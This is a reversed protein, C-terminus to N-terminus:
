KEEKMESKVEKPGKKRLRASTKGVKDVNEFRWSEAGPVREIRKKDGERKKTSSDRNNGEVSKPSQEREQEGPHRTLNNTQSEEKKELSAFRWVGGEELPEPPRRCITTSHRWRPKPWSPRPAPCARPLPLKSPAWVRHQALEPLSGQEGGGGMLLHWLSLM